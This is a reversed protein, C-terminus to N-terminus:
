GFIWLDLSPDYFFMPSGTTRIREKEFLKDKSREKFVIQVVSTFVNFYLAKLTM